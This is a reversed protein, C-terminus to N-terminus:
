LAVSLLPLSPILYKQKLQTEGLDLTKFQKVGSRVSELTAPSANPHCLSSVSERRFVVFLCINFEDLPKVAPLIRINSNFFPHWPNRTGPQGRGMICIAAPPSCYCTSKFHVYFLQVFRVRVVYLHIIVSVSEYKQRTSRVFRFRSDNHCKM